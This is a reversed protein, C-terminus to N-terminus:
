DQAIVDYGLRKIADNIGDEEILLNHCAQFYTLVSDVQYGFVVGEPSLSLSHENRLGQYTFAVQPHAYSCTVTSVNIGDWVIKRVDNGEQTATGIKQVIEVVLERNTRSIVRSSVLQTWACENMHCRSTLIMGPWVETSRFAQSAMAPTVSMAILALFVLRILRMTIERYFPPYYAQNDLGVSSIEQQQCTVKPGNRGNNAIMPLM